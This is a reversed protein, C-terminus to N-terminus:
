IQTKVAEPEVKVDHDWRDSWNRQDSPLWEESTVVQLFAYLPVAMVLLFLVGIKKIM